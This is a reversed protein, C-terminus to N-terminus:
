GRSHRSRPSSTRAASTRRVSCRHFGSRTPSKDLPPGMASMSAAATEQTACSGSSTGPLAHSSNTSSRRGCSSARSRRRGIPEAIAEQRRVRNKFVGGRVLAMGLGVGGVVSVFAITPVVSLHQQATFSVVACTLALLRVDGCMLCWLLVVSCLLPFRGISSSLPDVMVRAGTTWMVAALAAAAALGAWRGLQRFVGWAAVLVCFGNLVATTSLMGVGGGLLREAPALLYFEIPGPHAANRDDQGYHGSTSPQGVLPARSTFVDRARLEIM